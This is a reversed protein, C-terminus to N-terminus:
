GILCKNIVVNCSTYLHVISEDQDCYVCTNDDKIGVKCLWSNTVLIGHLIRYQLWRLKSDLTVKFALEYVNKCDIDDLDSVFIDPRSSSFFNLKFYCVPAIYDNSNYHNYFDCSKIKDLPICKHSLTCGM